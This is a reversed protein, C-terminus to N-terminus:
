VPMQLLFHFYRHLFFDLGTFDKFYISSNKEGVLSKESSSLQSSNIIAFYLNLLQQLTPLWRIHEM